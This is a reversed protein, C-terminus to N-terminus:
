PKVVYSVGVLRLWGDECVVVGDTKCISRGEQNYVAEGPILVYKSNAVPDFPTSPLIVGGHGVFETSTSATGVVVNIIDLLFGAGVGQRFAM